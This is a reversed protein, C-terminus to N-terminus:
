HHDRSDDFTNSQLRHQYQSRPPGQWGIGEAHPTNSAGDCTARGFSVNPSAQAERQRWEWFIVDVFSSFPIFDLSLGTRGLQVDVSELSFEFATWALANLDVDLELSILRVSDM